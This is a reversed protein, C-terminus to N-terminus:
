SILEPLFSKAKKGLFFFNVSFNRFLPTVTFFISIGISRNADNTIKDNAPTPNAMASLLTQSIINNIITPNLAM